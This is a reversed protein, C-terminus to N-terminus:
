ANWGILPEVRKVEFEVTAHDENYLWNDPFWNGLREGVKPAGDFPDDIVEFDEAVASRLRGVALCTIELAPAGVGASAPAPSTSSAPAQKALTIIVMTLPEGIPVQYRFCMAVTM